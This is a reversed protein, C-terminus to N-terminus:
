KLLVVNCFLVETFGELNQFVKLCDMRWYIFSFCLIHAKM